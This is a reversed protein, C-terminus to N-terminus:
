PSSVMGRDDLFFFLLLAAKASAESSEDKFGSRVPIGARSEMRLM